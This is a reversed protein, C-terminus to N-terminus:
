LCKPMNLKSQQDQELLETVENQIPPQQHRIIPFDEKEEGPINLEFSRGIRESIELSSLEICNKASDEMMDLAPNTRQKKLPSGPSTVVAPAILVTTRLERKTGKRKESKEKWLLSKKRKHEMRARAYEFWRYIGDFQFIITLPLESIQHDRKLHSYLYISRDKMERPLDRTVFAKLMKKLHEKIHLQDLNLQFGYWLFSKYHKWLNHKYGYKTLDNFKKQVFNTNEASLTPGLIHLNPGSIGDQCFFEFL